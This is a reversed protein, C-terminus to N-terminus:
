YVLVLDTITQFLYFCDSITECLRLYDSMIQFLLIEDFTIKNKKNISLILTFTFVCKSFYINDNYHNDTGNNNDDDNM